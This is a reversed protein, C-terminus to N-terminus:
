PFLSPSPRSVATLRSRRRRRNRRGLQRRRRSAAGHPGDENSLEIPRADILAYPRNALPPEPPTLPM